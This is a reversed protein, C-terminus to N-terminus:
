LNYTYSDFSPLNISINNFNTVFAFFGCDTILFFILFSTFVTSTCHLIVIDSFYLMQLTALLKKFKM